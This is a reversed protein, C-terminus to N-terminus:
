KGMNIWIGKPKLLDYIIQLYNVINKATDIFFCTLVADWKGQQPEREDGDQLTGYIEEFDGAVLSFSPGRPADSPLVDPIKIEKLLTDSTRMNSFSHIYPYITHQNIQETRNLIFYSSLLMYHSFENGQCSYGRKVVEYPLRALGTGPVLVQVSEKEEASLNTFHMDLAELIPDYCAEREPKGEVSWDRVFQKLTSRLKDMDNDSVRKKEGRRSGHKGQGHATHWTQGGDHSHPQLADYPHPSRDVNALSPPVDSSGQHSCSVPPPTSPAPPSDHSTHFTRGGDHSHVDENNSYRPVSTGQEAPASHDRLSHFSKGGDHSHTHVFGHSEEQLDGIQEEVDPAGGNFIDPHDVVANLFKANAEIRQDVMDIRERFGLENLLKQHALPLSYFDKLRRANASLSYQRYHAFADLVTRFHLDELEADTLKAEHDPHSM